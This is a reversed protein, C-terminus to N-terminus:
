HERRDTRAAQRYPRRSAGATGAGARPAGGRAAGPGTSLYGELRGAAIGGYYASRRPLLVAAYAAALAAPRAVWKAADLAGYGHLALTRGMGRAYRRGKSRAAADPSTVDLENHFGTLHPDYRLAHGRELLRLVVDQAESSQWRTAAGVGLREDFGGVAALPARRYVGLWEIQTTWVTCRDVRCPLPEFRGNITRGSADVPRGSIGALTPDADLAAAARALFGPPYWCDDDPFVVYEDDSRALGVNRGRSAGREGPRSVYDIPYARTSPGCLEALRGEPSQDVVTVRFNRYTQADLSALLRALRRPRGVSTVIACLTREPLNVDHSSRM